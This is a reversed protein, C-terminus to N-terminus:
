LGLAIRLRPDVEAQILPGTRGLRRVIVTQEVAALKHLRFVSSVRLGTLPFEPHSSDVLFDTPVFAGRVVSSIGALVLDDGLLGPSVIMAPRVSQGTLDTFPFLTLVVDGRAFTPPM